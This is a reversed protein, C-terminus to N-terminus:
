QKPEKTEQFFPNKWKTMELKRGDRAEATCSHKVSSVKARETNENDRLHDDIRRPQVSTCISNPRISFRSLFACAAALM